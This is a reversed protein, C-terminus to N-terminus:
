LSPHRGDGQGQLRVAQAYWGGKRMLQKHSGREVVEGERLVLIVDCARVSSMRHAVLVATADRGLGHRSPDAIVVDVPSPTWTEVPSCLVEADLDALTVAADACAAARSIRTTVAAPRVDRV